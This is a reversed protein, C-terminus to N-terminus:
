SLTTLPCTIQGPLFPCHSVGIVRIQDSGVEECPEQQHQVLPSAPILSLPFGCIGARCGQRSATNQTSPFHARETLQFPIFKPHLVPSQSYCRHVLICDFASHFKRHTGWPNRRLIKDKGLWHVRCPKRQLPSFAPTGVGQSQWCHPAESAKPAGDAECDGARCHTQVVSTSSAIADTM